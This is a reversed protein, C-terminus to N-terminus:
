QTSQRVILEPRFTRERIRAARGDTVSKLEEMMYPVMEDLPQRVTTIPTNLVAAYAVDDFGTVAIDRGVRYGLDTVAKTAGIAIFDNLCVFCDPQDDDETLVRSVTEYGASWTPSPIWERRVAGVDVGLNALEESFGKWRDRHQKAELEEHIFCFKSMGRGVLHRAILRMGEEDDISIFPLNSSENGQAFLVVPIGRETLAVLEKECTGTSTIVLGEIGLNTIRRIAEVEAEPLQETSAFLISTATARVAADMLHATQSFFPNAIDFFIGGIMHSRGKSLARAAASPSYQLREITQLVRARLEPRVRDPHNLVNSVTGVSVNAIKAIEYISSSRSRGM